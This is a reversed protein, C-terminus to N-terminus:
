QLFQVFMAEGSCVLCKLDLGRIIEMMEMM